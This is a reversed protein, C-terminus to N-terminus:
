YNREKGEPTWRSGRAKYRTYYSWCPSCNLKAHSEACCSRPGVTYERNGKDFGGPPGASGHEYWLEACVSNERQKIGSNEAKQRPLGKQQLVAEWPHIFPQQTNFTQSIFAAHLLQRGWVWRRAWGPARNREAERAGAWSEWSRALPRATLEAGATARPARAM